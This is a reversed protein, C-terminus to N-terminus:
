GAREAGVPADLRYRALPAISATRDAVLALLEPTWTMRDRTRNPSDFVIRSCAALYDPSPALGLERCLGDLAPAPEAIVEELHLRHFHAPEHRRAVEEVTDALTLFLDVVDALPRKPARRHMTAIVDYPNRVVNVVHVDVAVTEALRDLLGIDDRLRLTSRGGKKDGIVELRAYTGQWQGPVAYAYGGSSVHGDALRARQQAVLLAFLRRRDYGAGVYKLVDLEHAILTNPHADVLAGVLSHGTRPQGVFVVFSRVTAFDRRLRHGRWGSTVFTAPYRRLVPLARLRRAVPARLEVM